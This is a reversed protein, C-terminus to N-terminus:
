KLSRAFAERRDEARKKRVLYFVVAAGLGIGASAATGVGGGLIAGIIAGLVVGVVILVPLRDLQEKM